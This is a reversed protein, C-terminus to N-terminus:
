ERGPFSEQSVRESALIWEEIQDTVDWVARLAPSFPHSTDLFAERLGELAERLAESLHPPLNDWVDAALGDSRSQNM